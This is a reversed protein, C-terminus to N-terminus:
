TDPTGVEIMVRRNDSSRGFDATGGEGVIQIREASIQGGESLAAAVAEARNKALTANWEPPGDASSYGRVVILCSHSQLRVILDALVARMESTVEASNSAFGAVEVQESAGCFWGQTPRPIQVSQNGYIGVTTEGAMGTGESFSLTALDVPDNGVKVELIYLNRDLEPRDAGAWRDNTLAVAIEAPDSGAPLPFTFTQSHSALLEETVEVIGEVEPDYAAAVEGRGIIQDDAMVIFQPPNLYVTGSLKIEIQPSDAAPQALVSGIMLTPIIAALLLKRM